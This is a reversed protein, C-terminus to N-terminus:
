SITLSIRVSDRSLVSLYTLSLPTTTKHGGEVMRTKRRFNDGMKVGFIRHCSVEQYRPLLDEVSGEYLEFAIRM